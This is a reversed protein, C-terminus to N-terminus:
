SIWLRLDYQSRRHTFFILAVDSFKVMSLGAMHVAFAGDSCLTSLGFAVLLATM